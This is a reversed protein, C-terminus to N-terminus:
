IKMVKSMMKKKWKLAMIKVKIKKRKILAGGDKTEKNVNVKREEKKDDKKGNINPTDDVDGNRDLKSTRKVPRKGNKDNNDKAAANNDGGEEKEDVEKTKDDEKRDANKTIKPPIIDNTENKDRKKNEENGDMLGTKQKRFVITKMPSVVSVVEPQEYYPYTFTYKSVDTMPLIYTYNTANELYEAMFILPILEVKVANSEEIM